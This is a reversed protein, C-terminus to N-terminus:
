ESYGDDTDDDDEKEKGDGEDEDEEDGEEDPEQRLLVDAAVSHDPLDPDPCEPHIRSMGWITRGTGRPLRLQVPPVIRAAPAAEVASCDRLAAFDALHSHQSEVGLIFDNNLRASRLKPRLSSTTRARIRM